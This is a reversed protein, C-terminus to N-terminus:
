DKGRRNSLRVVGYGCLGGVAGAAITSISGVNILPLVGFLLMVLLGGVGGAILAITAGGPGASEPKAIDKGPSQAVEAGPAKVADTPAPSGGTAAEVERLLREIDDDAPM